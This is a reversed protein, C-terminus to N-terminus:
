LTKTMGNLRLFSFFYFISESLVHQIIKKSRGDSEFVINEFCAYFDPSLTLMAIEDLDSWPM